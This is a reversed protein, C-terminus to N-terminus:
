RRASSKSMRWPPLVGSRGEGSFNFSGHPSSTAPIPLVVSADRCLIFLESTSARTRSAAGFATGTRGTPSYNRCQRAEAAYQSFAIVPSSGVPSAGISRNALTPAPSPLGRFHSRYGQLSEPWGHTKRERELDKDASREPQLDIFVRPFLLSTPNSHLLWLYPVSRCAPRSSPGRRGPIADNHRLVSEGVALRNSPFDTNARTARLSYDVVHLFHWHLILLSSDGFTVVLRRATCEYDLGM